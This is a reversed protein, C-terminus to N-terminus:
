NNKLLDLEKRAKKLVIYVSDDTDYGNKDAFELDAIINKHIEISESKSLKDGVFVYEFFSYATMGRLYRLNAIGKKSKYIPVLGDLELIATKIESVTNSNGKQEIRKQIEIARNIISISDNKTQCFCLTTFVLAFLTILKKM